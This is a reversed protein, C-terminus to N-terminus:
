RVLHGVRGLSKPLQGAPHYPLGRILAEVKAAGLSDMMACPLQRWRLGHQAGLDFAPPEAVGEDIAELIPLFAAAHLRDAIAADAKADDATTGGLMWSQEAEGMRILGEAPAYFPGLRSLTRAANLFIRAKSLNVVSLVGLQAGFAVRSVGDIRDPSAGEDVLRVAENACPVFFRNVAFGYSDRCPLAEKNLRKALALAAAVTESNTALGRVVELLRNVQAPVFFHLGLFREPCRVFRALDDVRFSSTNTALIAELSVISSLREFTARKVDFDEFVAEVVLDSGAFAELDANTRLNRRGVDAEAETLRSKAVARTWQDLVGDRARAVIDASRDIMTVELGSMAARQAIGAGMTGAGLVGLKTITM